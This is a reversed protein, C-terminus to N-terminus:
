PRRRREPLRQGQRGAALGRRRRRLPHRVRRGGAFRRGTPGAYMVDDFASGLFEEISSYSDGYAEGGHANSVFNLTVATFFAAVDFGAGGYLTDGETGGVLTDNGEDGYLTDYWAGGDLQDNGGLGRLINAVSGGTRMADSYVSGTINEVSVLTDYWAWGGAAKGISTDIQVGATSRSYDVRDFGSGGDIYDTGEGAYIIDAAAGGYLFAADAGYGPDLTDGGEMGELTDQGPGGYLADDGAFGLLADEGAEGHLHDYGEGGVLLDDDGGGFLQDEGPGGELTDAGADGYLWDGGFQGYLVDHGTGGYLSNSWDNGWIIDAGTGGIANEIVTNFAIGVNLLMAPGANGQGQGISSYGGPALNITNPGSFQSADIVDIGGADYISFVSGRGTSFAYAAGASANFGYGDNGLRTNPDAGYIAQIALIDYVMPTTSKVGNYAGGGSTEPVYSMISFLLSDEAFRQGTGVPVSGANYYGPHSLGLAHGIEHLVTEFGRNGFSLDDLEGGNFTRGLSLNVNRIWHADTGYENEGASDTETNTAFARSANAGASVFFVDIFTDAHGDTGVLPDELIGPVIYEDWAAFAARLQVAEAASVSGGQLRYYVVSNGEWRYTRNYIDYDGDGDPGNLWSTRLARVIQDPTFSPLPTPSTWGNIQNADNDIPATLNGHLLATPASGGWLAASECAICM